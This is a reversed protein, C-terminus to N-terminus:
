LSSVNTHQGQPLPESFLSGDRKRMLAASLRCAHVGMGASLENIDNIRKARTVLSM